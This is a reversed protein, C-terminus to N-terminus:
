SVSTKLLPAAVFDTLALVKLRAGQMREEESYEPKSYEPRARV